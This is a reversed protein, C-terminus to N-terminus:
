FSSMLSNNQSFYLVLCRQSGENLETKPYQWLDCVEMKGASNWVKSWAEGNGLVHSLPARSARAFSSDPCAASIVCQLRSCSGPAFLFWALKVGLKRPYLVWSHPAWSLILTLSLLIQEDQLNTCTMQWFSCPWGQGGALAKGSCLAGLLTAHSLM